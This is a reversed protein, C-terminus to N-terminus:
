RVKRGHSIAEAVTRDIRGIDRWRMLRVIYRGLPLHTLPHAVSELM